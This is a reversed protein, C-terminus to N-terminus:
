IHILSLVHPSKYKELLGSKIALGTGTQDLGIVVDSDPDQAELKLRSLLTGSDSSKVVSVECNQKEEFIPVVDEVWDLSEYIYITLEKENEKACSLFMSLMVIIILMNKM